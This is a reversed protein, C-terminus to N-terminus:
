MGDGLWIHAGADPVPRPAAARRVDRLPSGWHLTLSSLRSQEVCDSLTICTCNTKLSYQNGVRHKCIRQFTATSVVQDVSAWVGVATQLDMPFPTTRAAGCRFTWSYLFGSLNESNGDLDRRSILHLKSLRHIDERIACFWLVLCTSWVVFPDELLRYLLSLFQTHICTYMYIYIYIYVCICIYIYICVSSVLSSVRRRLVGASGVGNGRERTFLPRWLHPVVIYYLLISYFIIYYIIIYYLMVYYLIVYCVIIYYLIIHYLTSYYLVIHYSIILFYSLMICYLVIYYLIIYYLIINYYIINYYITYYWIM